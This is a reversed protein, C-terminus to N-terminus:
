QKIFIKENKDFIKFHNTYKSLRITEKTGLCLFGDPKLSELFLFFVKDQLERSFYILVNRCMILDMEGFTHDTVLNHDSFVINEKLHSKLIASGYSATYYDSFSATGGANQYSTKYERIKDLSYIGKKAKEIVEINSDTAYIQCKDYLNLEKLFIATSYVEEGTSCGAHWIKVFPRHSLRDLVKTRLIKFFSTDRFMQTVNISFDQLLLGLFHNDYLLKHQMASIDALGSLSLRRLIRRKISARTYGRFDYGSKQHIAELLLLIEIDESTQIKTM